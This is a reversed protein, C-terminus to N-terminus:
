LKGDYKKNLCALHEIDRILPGAKRKPGQVEDQVWAEIKTGQRGKNQWSAGLARPDDTVVFIIIDLLRM